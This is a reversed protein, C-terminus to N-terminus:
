LSPADCCSTFELNKVHLTWSHLCCALKLLSLEYARSGRRVKFTLGM